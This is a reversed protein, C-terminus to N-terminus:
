AKPKWKRALRRAKAIQDPRLTAGISDLFQRPLDGDAATARAAWLEFWMYAQVFDRPASRGNAYRAGLLGLALSSGHDAAARYWRMAEVLDQKVGDGREYLLGLAAQADASGRTRPKAIGSPPNSLIRRRAKARM